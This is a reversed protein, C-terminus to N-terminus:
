RTGGLNVDFGADNFAEGLEMRDQLMQVQIKPDLWASRNQKRMNEYYSWTRKEPIQQVPNQPNSTQPRPPATFQQQQPKPQDLGLLHAFTTPKRRALEDAEERTLDLRELQQKYVDTYNDGYREILKNKVSQLNENYTRTLEAQKFKNEILSEIQRYDIATEERRPTTPEQPPTEKRGQIQDILDELKQKAVNEERYRLADERLRKNEAEVQKIHNDQFIKSRALSEPSDYRKGEGVLDNLYSRTAELNQPDPLSQNTPTM